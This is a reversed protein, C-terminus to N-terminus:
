MTASTISKAMSWSAAWSDASKGEAYWEAVIEGGRIVVVGQTNHEPQFAYERAAELGAADMNHAAPDVVSWDAGPFVSATDDGDTTATPQSTSSEAPETTEAAVTTPAISSTDAPRTAAEDTSRCAGAVCALVV